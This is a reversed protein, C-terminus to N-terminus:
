PPSQAQSGPLRTIARIKDKVVDTPYKLKLARELQAKKGSINEEM